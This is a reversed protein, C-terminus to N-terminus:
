HVFQLTCTHPWFLETRELVANAMHLHNRPARQSGSRVNRPFDESSFRDLFPKERFAFFFVNIEM